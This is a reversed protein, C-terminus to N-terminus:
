FLKLKKYHDSYFGGSSETGSCTIYYKYMYM